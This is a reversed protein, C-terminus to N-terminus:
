DNTTKAHLYYVTGDIEVRITRNPSTPSVTAAEGLKWKRVSGGTPAATVIEAAKTVKFTNTNDTLNLFNSSAGSATNTVLMYIGNINATTNWTSQLNLIDGGNNGTFSSGTVTIPAVNTTNSIALVTTDLYLGKLSSSQNNVFFVPGKVVLSAAYTGADVMGITVEQSFYSRGSVQLIEGNATNTTSGILLEGAASITARVANNTVFQTPYNNANGFVAAYASTGTFLGGGASSEIGVAMAANSNYAQFGTASTGTRGVNVAYETTTIVDLKGGIRENGSVQLKYDGADSTTGIYTEGSSTNFYASTTSRIDGTVDLKYSPSTTGIGVNGANDIRMRETLSTSGDPTTLFEIRGPMDSSGPTGDVRSRIMATNRLVSGDSAQFVMAGSIDGSQAITTSNIATGRTKGLTIYAGDIDNNNAIWQAGGYGVIESAYQAVSSSWGTSRLSTTGVLVNGSTTAFNAGLTSRLTGAIDTKYGADTTTGIGINGNSFIRARENAGNTGFLIANDSRIALDTSLGSLVTGSGFYGGAPTYRFWAIDTLEVNGGAITLKQGPTTTNIGVNTGNDFIQSNGLAKTGTFKAVYNTTGSGTFGSGAISAVSDIGKQVRARTAMAATDVLFAQGSKTLGYGAHRVYNTLMSSTDSINVKLNIRNSLFVTDSEKLYPALM